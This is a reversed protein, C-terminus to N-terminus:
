PSTLSDIEALNVFSCPDAQFTMPHSHMHIHCFHHLLHIYQPSLFPLLSCLCLLAQDQCCAMSVSKLLVSSKNIPKLRM